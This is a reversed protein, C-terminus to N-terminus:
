DIEYVPGDWEIVSDPVPHGDSNREFVYATGDALTEICLYMGPADSRCFFFTGRADTTAAPNSCSRRSM